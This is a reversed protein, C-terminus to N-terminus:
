PSAESLSLRITLYLAQSSLLLTTTHLPSQTKLEAALVALEYSTFGQNSDLLVWWNSMCGGKHLSNEKRLYRPRAPPTPSPIGPREGRKKIM